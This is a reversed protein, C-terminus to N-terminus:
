LNVSLVHWCGLLNSLIPLSSQSNNHQCVCMSVSMSVSKVQHWLRTEQRLYCWDLKVAMIGRGPLHVLYAAVLQVFLENM